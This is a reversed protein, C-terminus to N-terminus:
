VIRWRATAWNVTAITVGAALQAMSRNSALTCIGAVLSAVANPIGSVTVPVNSNVTSNNGLQGLQNRGWCRVDTGQILACSHHEGAAIATVGAPLGIVDVPVAVDSNTGDGLQGYQNSGWCQVSGSELLACSHDVGLALAKVSGTLGMVMVPTTRPEETGDGLQGDNNRGWCTVGGNNAIACTHFRGPFIARIAGVPVTPNVQLPISHSDASGEGLQRDRNSGWCRIAGTDNLVCTHEEGAALVTIPRALGMVTVSSSRRETTGDGLLGRNNSGWCYVAGSKELACSHYRGLSITSLTGPLQTVEIPTPQDAGETGNLQGRENDGWCWTTNDVLLACTHYGGTAISRASRPLGNVTVPSSRNILTRDGLQGQSNEGWCQVAGSDLLAHTHDTGAVLTMVAGALGGVAM